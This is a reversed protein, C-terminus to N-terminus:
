RSTNLDVTGSPRAQRSALRLKIHRNRQEGPSPSPAARTPPGSVLNSPDAFLRPGELFHWMTWFVRQLEVLTLSVPRGALHEDYIAEGAPDPRDAKPLDVTKRWVWGLGAATPRPFGFADPRPDFTAPTVETPSKWTLADSWQHHVSNRVFRVGRMLFGSEFRQRWEWGLPAGEPAWHAAIREDLAVTWHLAEFLPSFGRNQETDEAAQWFRACAADYGSLLHSFTVINEGYPDLAELNRGVQARRVHGLASRRM